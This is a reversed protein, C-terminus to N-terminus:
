RESTDSPQPNWIFNLVRWAEKEQIVTVTEYVRTTPYLRYTSQFTLIYTPTVVQPAGPPFSLAQADGLQREILGGKTSM